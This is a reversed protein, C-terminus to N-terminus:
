QTFVQPRSNPDDENPYHVPTYYKEDYRRAWLEVYYGRVCGICWWAGTTKEAPKFSGIPVYSGGREFCVYSELVAYDEDPYLIRDKKIYAKM